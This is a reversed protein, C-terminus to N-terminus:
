ACRKATRIGWGDLWTKDNFGITEVVLVDGEWRGISYGMWSPQPDEPHARGDLFIQRFMTLSEYLVVLLDPTQVIKFPHTYADLRPVGAPLCHALPNDRMLNAGRQKYLAAAWPQLPVEEPKLDQMIDIMYRPAVIDEIGGPRGKPDPASKWIGSLDPKGYPTRPAPASFNPKGDPTRPIGKTPHDIWQAAAPAALAALSLAFLARVTAASRHLKM